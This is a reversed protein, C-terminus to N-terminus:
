FLEYTLDFIDPKCAYFEGKIGEIIWDGPLVFMGGELTEIWGCREAQEECNWAPHNSPLHKVAPHDGHKEWKTAEVVVPRKRVRM